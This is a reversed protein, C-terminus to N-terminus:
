TVRIILAQKYDLNNDEKCDLNIYVRYIDLPVNRPVDVSVTDPFLEGSRLDFNSKTYGFWRRVEDARVNSPIDDQNVEIMYSFEYKEKGINRIGIALDYSSGQEISISNTLLNLPKDSEGFMDRIEQEMAESMQSRQEEVDAFINFVWRLGLTLLTIGIIVIVITNMSLEVAGKKNSGRKM